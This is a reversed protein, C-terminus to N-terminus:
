LNPLFDILNRIHIGRIIIGYITPNNQLCRFIRNTHRYSDFCHSFIFSNTTTDRYRPYIIKIRRPTYQIRTVTPPSIRFYPPSGGLVLLVGLRLPKRTRKPVLQKRHPPWEKGEKSFFFCTFYLIRLCKRRSRRELHCFEVSAKEETGDPTM